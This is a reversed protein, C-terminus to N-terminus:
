YANTSHPAESRKTHAFSSLQQGHRSFAAQSKSVISVPESQMVFTHLPVMRQVNGMSVPSTTSSPITYISWKIPPETVHQISQVSKHLAEYSVKNEKVCHM